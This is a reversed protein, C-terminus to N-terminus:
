GSGGQLRQGWYAVCAVTMLVAWPLGTAPKRPRTLGWRLWYVWITLVALALRLTETLMRM